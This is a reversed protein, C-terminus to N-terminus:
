PVQKLRDYTPEAISVMARRHSGQQRDTHADSRCDGDGDMHMNGATRGFAVRSSGRTYFVRQKTVANAQAVGSAVRAGPVRLVVRQQPHCRVRHPASSIGSPM